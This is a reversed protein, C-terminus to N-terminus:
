FVFSFIAETLLFPDVTGLAASFELLILVPLQGNNLQDSHM